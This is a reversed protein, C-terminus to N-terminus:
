ARGKGKGKVTEVEEVEEEDESGTESGSWESSSDIEMVEDEQQKAAAQRHEQELGAIEGEVEARLNYTCTFHTLVM